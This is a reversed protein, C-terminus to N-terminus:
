CEASPHGWPNTRPYRALLTQFQRARLEGSQPRHAVVRGHTARIRASQRALHQEVERSWPTFELWEM